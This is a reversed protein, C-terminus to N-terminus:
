DMLIVSFLSLVHYVGDQSYKKEQQYFIRRNSAEFDDLDLSIGYAYCYGLLEEAAHVLTDLNINKRSMRGMNDNIYKKLESGLTAEMKWSNDDQNSIEFAEISPYSLILMGGREDDNTRANKLMGILDSILSQNCNSKADRDFLYYIAANDIDFDYTLLQEFVHDLYEKDKISAINSSSSSVIGVVSHSDTESKYFTSENRRKEIVRYGFLQGFIREALVFEHKAGEVILLVKGIRKDRHLRM